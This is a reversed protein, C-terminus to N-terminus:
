AAAKQATFKLLDPVLKERLPTAADPRGQWQRPVGDFYTARSEGIREVRLWHAGDRVEIIPRVGFLQLDTHRNACESRTWKGYRSLRKWASAYMWECVGEHTRTIAVMRPEPCDCDDIIVLRYIM